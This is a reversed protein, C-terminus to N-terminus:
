KKKKLKKWLYNLNRKFNLKRIYNVCKKKIIKKKKLKKWLYFM